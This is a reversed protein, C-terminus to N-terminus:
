PAVPMNGPFGGGPFGGNQGGPAMGGMGNQGGPTMGGPAMGNQGGPAMGMGDPGAIGGANDLVFSDSIYLQGDYDIGAEGGSAASSIAASGSILNINGNSDLGDGSCKVNLAGGLMNISYTLEGIYTGDSNAANVADDSCTLSIGGGLINVVTGELGEVCSTVNIEPGTGDATGVTLIHDAHIADDAANINFTGGLIALDYNANIADNAATINLTVGDIILSSNDGAKIGNKASGNINLTGSGTIYVASDAKAKIAAGDYADATDADTSYEDDPNEADTLTVTGSIIVKVETEKNISVPAGSSISLTLDQLILVVGTTGKKVTVSGSKCSGTIIYTGASSIKVESNEDSMTITEADAYDAELLMAPNETMGYVIDGPQSALTYQSGMGGIPTRFSNGSPPTMQQAQQGQQIDSPPTGPQFAAGPAATQSTGSQNDSPPAIAGSPAASADPPTQDQSPVAAPASTQITEGSVAPAPKGGLTLSLTRASEDWVYSSGYMRAIDDAYVATRGGINFSKVAAGDFYAVIDTYYVDGAYDGNKHGSSQPAYEGSATESADRSACLARKEADWVVDFGYDELDEVIVATYGAINYSRIPLSDIYAIIDTYLYSGTIDGNKEAFAGIPLAACATAAAAALAIYKASTKKM